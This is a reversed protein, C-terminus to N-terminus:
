RSTAMSLNELHILAAWDSILFRSRRDLEELGDDVL